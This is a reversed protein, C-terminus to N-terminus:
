IRDLEIYPLSEPVIRTGKEFLNDQAKEYEKGILDKIKRMETENYKGMLNKGLVELEVRERSGGYYDINTQMEKYALEMARMKIFRVIDTPSLKLSDYDEKPKLEPRM